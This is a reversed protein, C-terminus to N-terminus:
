SLLPPSAPVSGSSMSCPPAYAVYRGDPSITVGVARGSDTLKTVRMNQFDPGKSRSLWKHSGFGFALIVLIAAVSIVVAHKRTWRGGSVRAPRSTAVQVGSSASTGEGSESAVRHLGTTTSLAAVTSPEKPVEVTVSAVFRYGRRPLTEVYRPKEADDGLAARIQNVCFNISRGFDVFTDDSWLRGRIEERTVIQGARAALMLLVQVAQPRLKIPIGAKRLESSTADLEFAGFRIRSIFRVPSAM